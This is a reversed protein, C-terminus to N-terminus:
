SPALKITPLKKSSLSLRTSRKLIFSRCIALKKLDYRMYGVLYLGKSKLIEIRDLAYKVDSPDFIEITEVPNKFIKNAYIQM